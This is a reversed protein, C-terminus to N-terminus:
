SFSISVLNSLGGLKGSISKPELLITRVCSAEPVSTHDHWQYMREHQACSYSMARSCLAPQPQSYPPTRLMEWLDLDTHAAHVSFTNTSVGNGADCGSAFAGAAVLAEQAACLLPLQAASESQHLLPAVLM